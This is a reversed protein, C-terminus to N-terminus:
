ALYNGQAQPRHLHSTFQRFCNLEGSHRNDGVGVWGEEEKMKGIHLLNM